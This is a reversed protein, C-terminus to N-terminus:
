AGGLRPPNPTVKSLVAALREENVKYTFKSADGDSGSLDPGNFSCTADGQKGIVCHVDAGTCVYDGTIDPACTFDPDGGDRKTKSTVALKIDPDNPTCFAQRGDDYICTM